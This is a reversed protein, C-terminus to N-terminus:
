LNPESRRVTLKCGNPCSIMLKEGPKAFVDMEIVSRKKSESALVTILEGGKTRERKVTRKSIKNEVQRRDRHLVTLMYRRATEDTFSRYHDAQVSNTLVQHKLFAIM